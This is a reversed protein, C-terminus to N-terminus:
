LRITRAHPRNGGFHKRPMTKRHRMIGDRGEQPRMAAPPAVKQVANGLRPANFQYLRYLSEPSM